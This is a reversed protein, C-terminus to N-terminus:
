THTPPAFICSKNNKQESKAILFRKFLKMKPNLIERRPWIEATHFPKSLTWAELTFQTELISYFTNEFGLV